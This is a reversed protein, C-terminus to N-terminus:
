CEKIHTVSEVELRVTYTLALLYYFINVTM